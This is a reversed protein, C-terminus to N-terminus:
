FKPMWNGLFQNASKNPNKKDVNPFPNEELVVVNKEDDNPSRKQRSSFENTSRKQRGLFEDAHQIDRNERVDSLLGQNDIKLNDQFLYVIINKMKASKYEALHCPIAFSIEIDFEFLVILITVYM